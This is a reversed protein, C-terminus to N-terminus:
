THVGNCINDAEKKAAPAGAKLLACTALWADYLSDKKAEAELQSPLLGLAFAVIKAEVTAPVSMHPWEIKFAKSNAWKGTQKFVKYQQMHKVNTPDFLERQLGIHSDALTKCIESRGSHVYKDRLDALCAAGINRDIDVTHM